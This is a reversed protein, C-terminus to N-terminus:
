WLRVRLTKFMKIITAFSFWNQTRMKIQDIIVILRIGFPLLMFTKRWVNCCTNHTYTNAEIIIRIWPTTIYARRLYPLSLFSSHTHSSVVCFVANFCCFQFIKNPYLHLTETSKFQTKFRM